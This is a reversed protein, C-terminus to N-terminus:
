PTLGRRTDDTPPGAALGGLIAAVMSALVVVGSWLAPPWTLGPATALAILHGSWVLTVVIAALAPLRSGQGSWPVRDLLQVVVDATIAGVTAGVAGTVAAVPLDVVLATLWAQTAVVLTVLGRPARGRRWALLLPVVFVATTVLFGGLGAIAPLEAEEHGAAGEPLRVYATTPAANAFEMVYILFFATVASALALSGQAVVSSTDGVAWRSRLASTLVLMGGVLLVLHSPSLLADIGAEVGLVLHWTMDLLGGAGFTAIGVVGWGYGVPLGASRRALFAMWMASVAFASYLAAHWPTFFGELEPVNFHAWGDSFLAGVFWLGVAVTVADGRLGVRRPSATM